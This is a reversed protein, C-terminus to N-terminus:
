LREEVILTGFKYRKYGDNDKYPLELVPTGDRMGVSIYLNYNGPLVNTYLTKLPDKLAPAITLTFEQEVQKEMGIRDVPLDKVNFGEDVQVFIIGGQEDKLTLCPFGGPYCPAVGANAWAASVKFPEGLKVQNPFSISKLRIRYGMRLNIKDIVDRNKNLFIHPWWHVSMYSAHYEEISKLLLEKSWANDRISEGYHGTELIVPLTPWFLQAMKAHYWPMGEAAQGWTPSGKKEVLISDDRLTVGKSFAYDIIPFHNGPKQPGAFDDNICLLSQKFYKCYIDVYKKKVEFGYDIHTTAVTHGEGWLGFHGIDVYAINPNGDYRKAMIAVFNEVKELFVPDNFDPEWFKSNNGWNFGNAGAKKVWEPTAYRISSEDATIRLAIKKDKDIWRQAPTDLIAWNFKGEEQEIFSWALRLYVTSLGPFLNLTDSPSLKSGYYGISNDYYPFYWGMDPNVLANGHDIPSLSIRDTNQLEKTIISINPNVIFTVMGAKGITNVFKRRNMVKLKELIIIYNNRKIFYFCANSILLLVDCGLLKAVM